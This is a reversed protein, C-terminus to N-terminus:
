IVTQCFLKKIQQRGIPARPFCNMVFDKTTGTPTHVWHILGYETGQVNWVCQGQPLMKNISGGLGWNFTCGLLTLWLNVHKM